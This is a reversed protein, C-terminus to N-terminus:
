ETEGPQVSVKKSPPALITILHYDAVISGDPLEIQIEVPYTKGVQLATTDLSIAVTDGKVVRHKRSM